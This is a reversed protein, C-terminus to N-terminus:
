RRRRSRAVAWVAPAALAPLLSLGIAPPSECEECPTEEPPPSPQPTREALERAIETTAGAEIEISENITGYGPKRLELTHTGAPVGTLDVPTTGQLVGDVRVEAGEPVSRVALTGQGGIAADLGPRTLTVTITAYAADGLDRRGAPERVAYVTYTGADPVGGATRTNWTYQWQGADVVARTFSAPDGSVVGSRIDDLRAGEPPLNPGTVFLYVEDAGAATGRLSIEDGAAATVAAGAAPTLSLLLAALFLFPVPSRMVPGSMPAGKNKM